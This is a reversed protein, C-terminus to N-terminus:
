KNHLILFAFPANTWNYGIHLFWLIDFHTLSRINLVFTFDTNNYAQSVQFVVLWVVLVNCVNTFLHRLRIIFMYHNSLIVFSSRHLMVWCCAISFWILLLFHFQIPCVNRLSAPAISFVANSQFGRPYLLLSLGFLVHRLVTSSSILPVLLDHFSTLPIAPSRILQFSKM